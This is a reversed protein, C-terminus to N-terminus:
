SPNIIMAFWYSQDLLVFQSTAVPQKLEAELNIYMSYQGTPADKAIHLTIITSNSTFPQLSVSNPSSTYNFASMQIISPNGTDDEPDDWTTLLVNHNYWWVQLNKIYVFEEPGTSTITVNVKLNNGQTVNTYYNPPPFFPNNIMPGNVVSTNASFIIQPVPTNHPHIQSSYGLYIIGIIIIAIVIVVVRLVVLKM